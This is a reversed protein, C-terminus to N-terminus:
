IYVAQFGPLKKNTGKFFIQDAWGPANDSTYQSESLDITHNLFLASGNSGL